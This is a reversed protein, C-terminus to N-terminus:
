EACPSKPVNSKNNLGLEERLHAFKTPDLHRPNSALERLARRGDETFYARALPGHTRVEVWGRDVMGQMAAPIKPRRAQPGARWTRLFIGDELRPFQSFHQSFVSRILDREASSFPPKANPM